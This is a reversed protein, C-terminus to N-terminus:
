NNAPRAAAMASPAKAGGRDGTSNSSKRPGRRFPRILIDLDRRLKAKVTGENVVSWTMMSGLSMAYITEALNATSTYGETLEGAAVAEDLLRKFGAM